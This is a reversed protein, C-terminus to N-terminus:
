EDITVGPSTFLDEEPSPTSMLPIESDGVSSEGTHIEKEKERLSEGLKKDVDEQDEIMELWKDWLEDVFQPTKNSLWEHLKEALFYQKAYNNSELLNRAQKKLEDWEKAFFNEIPEPEEDESGIARIGIALTASRNSTTLSVLSGPIIYKSRWSNEHDRLPRMVWKLGHCSFTREIMGKEVTEECDSLLKRLKEQREYRSLEKKDNSM